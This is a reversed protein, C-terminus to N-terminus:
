VVGRLQANRRRARRMREREKETTGGWVGDRERMVLAHELCSLRVPCIHCIAKAEDANEESDPFFVAPDLGNCAGRQRWTIEIASM